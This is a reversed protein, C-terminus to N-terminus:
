PLCKKAEKDSSGLYSEYKRTLQRSAGSEVGGGERKLLM